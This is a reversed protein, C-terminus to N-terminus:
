PREEATISANLAALVTRLEYPLDPFRALEDRLMVAAEITAKLKSRLREVEALADQVPTDTVTHAAALELVSDPWPAIPKEPQYRITETVVGNRGGVIQGVVVEGSQRTYAETTVCREYTITRADWDVEIPAGAPLSTPDIGHATCWNMLDQHASTDFFATANLIQLHTDTVDIVPLVTM